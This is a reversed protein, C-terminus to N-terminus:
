NDVANAVWRLRDIEIGMNRDAEFEFGAVVNIRAMMVKSFHRLPIAVETFTSDTFSRTSIEVFTSRNYPKCAGEPIKGSVFLQIFEPASGTAHTLRANFRLSGEAFDRGDRENILTFLSHHRMAGGTGLYLTTLTTSDANLSTLEEATGECIDLRYAGEHLDSNWGGFFGDHWIVQENQNFECTGDDKLARPEYNLALPDTCGKQEPDKDCSVLLLFASLFLLSSKLITM